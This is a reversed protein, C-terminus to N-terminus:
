KVTVRLMGNELCKKGFDVKYENVYVNSWSFKLHKMTGADKTLRGRVQINKVEGPALTTEVSKGQGIEAKENDEFRGTFQMPHNMDNELRLEFQFDREGTKRVETQSINVSKVHPEPNYPDRWSRWDMVNSYVAWAKWAANLEYVKEPYEGTLDNMEVRDKEMDYLEWPGPNLRALKWKGRIVAEGGPRSFFIHNHHNASKDRLAPLLSVGQMPITKEGNLHEPYQAHSVDAVTAMIDVLHGPERCIRGRDRIGAPWYAVLPTAIGGEHNEGKYRRFPTNCFNAWGRGYSEFSILTGIPHGPVGRYDLADAGNDSLFLILTNEEIGLERLKDLLRGINQDMRDIMAAYVAMRRDMYVKDEVDEWAPVRPGRPTLPWDKDIIGMEQMRRYREERLKDWGEMYRGLYKKVDEEPAQLPWHPANYALYLFFPDRSGEQNEEIWGIARSTFADTAYFGSDQPIYTQYLSDEVLWPPASFQHHNGWPALSGPLHPAFYNSIIGLNLFGYNRDFGRKDPRDHLHWKGTWFTRYGKSKLLEPIFVCNEMPLHWGNGSRSQYAYLGTLLAARSPFSKATNYFRTFRVGNEAMYDINPTSIEGGFCGIDSYGMDDCLILIINPRDPTEDEAPAFGFCTTGALLTAGFFAKEGIHKRM